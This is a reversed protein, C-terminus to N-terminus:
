LKSLKKLAKDHRETSQILISRETQNLGEGRPSPEKKEVTVSANKNVMGNGKITISVIKTATIILNIGAPLTKKSRSCFLTENQEAEEM